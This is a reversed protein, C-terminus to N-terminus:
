TLLFTYIGAHEYRMVIVLQICIKNKNKISLYLFKLPLFKFM